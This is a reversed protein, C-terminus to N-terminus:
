VNVLDIMLREMGVVLAAVKVGRRVIDVSRLSGEASSRVAGM